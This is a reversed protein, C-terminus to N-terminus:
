KAKLVFFGRATQILADGRAKKILRYFDEASNISEQNLATIIDGARLGTEDAPSNKEVETILAGEEFDNQYLSKQPLNRVKLGRWSQGLKLSLADDSTSDEQSRPSRILNGAEDFVPRKEIVVPIDIHKGQRIVKLIVKKGIPLDGIMRILSPSNKIPTADAATVVDGKQLGGAEAPSEDLVGSVLVGDTSPLGFYDALRPNLDQVAVGIWGYSVEKGKVLQDIIRKAHTIPIAFGIGQYGGSTSFIAVNIGIVEGNLNVLPGGSNGPNIAADTQILDTYDSDRRGTRPLSRRLASVVGATVTPEPNSLIHGFPNGIAVVWQGIRLQDSDGLPSSPLNPLDIKVVALDSRPDTGTLTGKAERGDSLRVLIKDAGSVVHENTLIFGKPDIIVGSGLGASKYEQRFSEGFFDEFFRNFLEDDLPNGSSFRRGYYETRETRISVVTPGSKKAVYEIATILNSNDSHSVDQSKPVIPQSGSPTVAFSLTTLFLFFFLSLFFEMGRRKKLSLCNIMNTNIKM